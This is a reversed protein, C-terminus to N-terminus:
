SAKTKTKAKAKAELELAKRLKESLIKVEMGQQALLFAAAASRRNSDCCVIYQREKDLLFATQRLIRLPFNISNKLHQRHFVEPSRVDVLTAGEGQMAAVNKYPLWKVYPRVLLTLFEGKSLQLLLGDEEMTVTNDYNDNAILAGEGFGDGPLLDALHVKHGHRSLQRTVNCRGELILYYFNSDDGEKIVVEGKKYAVEQMRNKLVQQHPKPLRAFLPMEFVKAIRENDHKLPKSGTPQLTENRTLLEELKEAAVSLVTVATQAIATVKRPQHDDIPKLADSSEAKLIDTPRGDSVLALQGSLLFMSRNDQESESFLRRGPPFREITSNSLLEDILDARLTNLPSYHSLHTEDFIYKAAGM